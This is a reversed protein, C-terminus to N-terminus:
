IKNSATAVIEKLKNNTEEYCYISIIEELTKLLPNWNENKYLVNLGQSTWRLNELRNDTKIGNIHDVIKNEADEIPNFALMIIRHVPFNKKVGTEM